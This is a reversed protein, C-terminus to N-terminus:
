RGRSRYSQKRPEDDRVGPADHETQARDPERHQRLEPASRSPEDPRREFAGGEGSARMTQIIM